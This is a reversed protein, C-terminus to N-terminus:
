RAWWDLTLVLAVLVAGLWSFARDRTRRRRLERANLEAWKEVALPAGMM